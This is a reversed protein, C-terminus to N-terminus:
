RRVAEIWARIEAPDTELVWQFHDEWLGWNSDFITEEFFALEPHAQIKQRAKTELDNDM